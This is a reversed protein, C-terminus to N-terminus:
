SAFGIMGRLKIGDELLMKLLATTGNL